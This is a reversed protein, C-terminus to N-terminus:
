GFHIQTPIVMPIWIQAVGDTMLRLVPMMRAIMQVFGMKTIVLGMVIM